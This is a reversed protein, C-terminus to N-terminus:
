KEKIHNINIYKMHNVSTSNIFSKSFYTKGCFILKECRFNLGKIM